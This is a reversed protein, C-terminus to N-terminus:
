YFYVNKVKQFCSALSLLSFLTTTVVHKQFTMATLRRQVVNGLSFNTNTVRLYSHDFFRFLEKTILRDPSDILLHLSLNKFRLALQDRLSVM